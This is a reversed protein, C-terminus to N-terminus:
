PHEFYLPEDLGTLKQRKIEEFLEDGILLMMIEVGLGGFDPKARLIDRPGLAIQGPMIRIESQLVGLGRSRGCMKCFKSIDLDINPGQLDSNSLDLYVSRKPIGVFHRPLLDHFDVQNPSIEEIVDKAKKSFVMFGDASYSLDMTPPLDVVFSESERHTPAKCRPCRRIDRRGNVLSEGNPKVGLEYPM